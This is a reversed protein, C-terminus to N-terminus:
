KGFFNGITENVIFRLRQLNPEYYSSPYMNTIYEDLEDKTRINNKFFLDLIIALGPGTYGCTTILQVNKYMRQWSKNKDCDELFNIALQFTNEIEDQPVIENLVDMDDQSDTNMKNM